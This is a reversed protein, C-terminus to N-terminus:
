WKNEDKIDPIINYYYRKNELRYLKIWEDLIKQRQTLGKYIKSTVFIKYMDYLMIRGSSSQRHIM